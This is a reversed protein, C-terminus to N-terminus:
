FLHRKDVIVYDGVALVSNFPILVHDDEERLKEILPNEPNPDVIIDEVEGTVENLNLDVVRGFEDGENTIVMRGTVQKALLYKVMM